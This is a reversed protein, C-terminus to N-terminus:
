SCRGAPTIKSSLSVFPFSAGSNGIGREMKHVNSEVEKKTLVKANKCIYVAELAAVAEVALSFMTLMM